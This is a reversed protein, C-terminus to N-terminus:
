KLYFNKSPIKNGISEPAYTYFIHLLQEVANKADHASLFAFACNPVAKSAIEKKLGLTYKEVLIGTEEPNSLTWEISKRCEELFQKTLEPHKKAFNKNIVITTMPYDNSLENLESWVHTLNICKKVKGSSKQVAVTAFPEPVVAYEIKDSIIAVPLEAAPISFNLVVANSDKEDTNIGNKSLLYRFVYEPTSGAGAVYVTKGKLDAFTRVEDDKSIIKLMGFGTVAGVVISNESSNYIKAALNPSLIGFDIENKLLKPILVDPSACVEYEVPVGNVQMVQDFMRAFCMGSPGNLVAFRMSEPATHKEKIAKAFISVSFFMFVILLVRNKMILNHYCDNQKKAIFRYQM